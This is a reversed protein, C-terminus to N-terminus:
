CVRACARSQRSVRSVRCCPLQLANAALAVLDGEEGSCEQCCCGMCFVAENKTIM